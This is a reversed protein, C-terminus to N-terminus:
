LRLNMQFFRMGNKIQEASNLQFGLRQYIEVAYPSSNVTFVELKPDTLQCLKLAHMWLLRAIGKRHFKSDVFLLSIHKHDRIEIMGLIENDLVAVFGFHNANLRSKMESKAIYKYFEAVGEKSYEPAEFQDFVRKVLDIVEVLDYSQISRIEIKM